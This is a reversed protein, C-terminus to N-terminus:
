FDEYGDAEALEGLREWIGDEGDSMNPMIEPTPEFRM